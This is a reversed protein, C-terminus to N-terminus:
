QPLDDLGTRFAEVPLFMWFGEREGIREILFRLSDEHPSTSSGEVRVAGRRELEELIDQTPHGDMEM